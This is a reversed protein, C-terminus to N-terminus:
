HTYIFYFKALKHHEVRDHILNYLMTTDFEDNRNFQIYDFIQAARIIDSVTVLGYFRQVDAYSCM